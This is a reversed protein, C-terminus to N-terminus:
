NMVSVFRRRSLGVIIQRCGFGRRLLGASVHEHRPGIIEGRILPFPFNQLSLLHQSRRSGKPLSLTCLVSRFAAQAAGAGSSIGVLGAVAVILGAGVLGHQLSREYASANRSEAECALRVVNGVPVPSSKSSRYWPRETVPQLRRHFACEVANNGPDFIRVGRRMGPSM